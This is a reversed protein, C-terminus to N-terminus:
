CFEDRDQFFLSCVRIFDRIYGTQPEGALGHQNYSVHIASKSGQNLHVSDIPVKGPSHDIWLPEGCVVFLCAFRNGIMIACQIISSECALSFAIAANNCPM